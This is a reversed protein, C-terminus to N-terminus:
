WGGKVCQIVYEVDEVSLNNHIPLAIITETLNALTTLDERIPGFLDNRDIRLHVVSVGVGKSNMMRAFETREEVHMCFLWNASVRDNCSEFLTVGEVNQLEERYHRVIEARQLLINPLYTLNEVGLSACIDNMQYKYGLETVNFKPEGLISPERKM